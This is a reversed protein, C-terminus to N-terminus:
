RADSNIKMKNQEYIYLGVEKDSMNNNDLDM